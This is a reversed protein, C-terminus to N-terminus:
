ASYSVYGLPRDMWVEFGLPRDTRVGFGIPGSLANFDTRDICLFGELSPSTISLAHMRSM